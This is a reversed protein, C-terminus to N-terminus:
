ASLGRDIHQIVNHLKVIEELSERDQMYDYQSEIDFSPAPKIVESQQGSFVMPKPKAPKAASKKAQIFQEREALYERKLHENMVECFKKKNGISDVVETWDAELQTLEKEIAQLEEDTAGPGSRLSDLSSSLAELRANFHQSVIEALGKFVKNLEENQAPSFPIIISVDKKPQALESTLTVQSSPKAARGIVQTIYKTVPVNVIAAGMTALALGSIVLAPWVAPALPASIAFPAMIAVFAVVRKAPVPLRGWLARFGGFLQSFIRQNQNPMDLEKASKVNFENDLTYIYEIDVPRLNSNELTADKVNGGSILERRAKINKDAIAHAQDDAQVYLGPLTALIFVKAVFSSTTSLFPTALYGAAMMCAAKANTSTFFTHRFAKRYIEDRRKEIDAKIKTFDAQSHAFDKQNLLANNINNQLRTYYTQLDKYIPDDPNINSLELQSSLEIVYKRQETLSKRVDEPLSDFNIDRKYNEIESQTRDSVNESFIFDNLMAGAPNDRMEVKAQASVFTQSGSRQLSTIAAATLQADVYASSGKFFDFLEKKNSQDIQLYKQILEVIKDLDGIGYLAKLWQLEMPLKKLVEKLSQAKKSNIQSQLANEQSKFEGIKFAIYDYKVTLDRLSLTSNVERIMSSLVNEFDAIDVSELDPYKSVDFHPTDTDILSMNVNGNQKEDIAARTQELLLEYGGSENQLKKISKAHKDVEAKVEDKYRQLAVTLSTNSNTSANENHSM